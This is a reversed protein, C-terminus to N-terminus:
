NCHCLCFNLLNFKRKISAPFVQSVSLGLYNNACFNLIKDKRGQVGVLNAQPTTIIREHKWTGAERIGDLENSVIQKM